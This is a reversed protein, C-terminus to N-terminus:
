SGSNPDYFCNNGDVLCKNLHKALEPHTSDIKNRTKQLNSWIAKRDRELQPDTTRTARRKTSRSKKVYSLLKPATKDSIDWVRFGGDHYGRAQAEELEAIHAPDVGLRDAIGADSLGEARLGAIKEGKRLFHRRAQEVNTIMINGAVRVKHTHSWHDPPSIHSVVVPNKPDRVDIISTGMPPDMHGVYAFGDQVM